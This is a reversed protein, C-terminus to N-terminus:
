GLALVTGGVAVAAGLARAVMSSVGFRGAATVAAIGIGHLLATAVAFGALYEIGTAAAPIETGHAHGHFLAFAGALIGGLWVPAKFAFAAFVGLVIVSALIAPEVLPLAVGSMGLIGGVVMTGVFVAPWVWLAAGGVLGAWLGVAVMALLHDPGLLPHTFGSAFGSASGAGVHALAPTAALAAALFTLKAFTKTM